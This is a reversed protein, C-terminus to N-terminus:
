RSFDDPGRLPGHYFEHDPEDDPVPPFTPGNETTAPAAAIPIGQARMTSAVRNRLEPLMSYLVDGPCATANFDRHGRIASGPNLGYAGCLWALTDVLTNTLAQTPGQTMYTGENEIGICTSNNNAVHTGVVHQRAAISEPTRDRGEMLFGGRSITLQQGTDIWGNSDMHYNQISKSLNLAHDLTYNTSNATATHHVVIYQPPTALVQIPSSPPRANWAGRWYLEPAAQAAPDVTEASAGGAGLAGLSGGLVAAGSTLAATRLLARRDMGSHPIPTM